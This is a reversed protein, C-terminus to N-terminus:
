TCPARGCSSLPVGRPPMPPERSRRPRPDDGGATTDRSREPTFSVAWYDNHLAGSRPSRLVPGSHLLRIGEPRPSRPTSDRSPRGRAGRDVSSGLSNPWTRFTLSLQEGRSPTDPNGCPPATRISCLHPRRPSPTVIRSSCTARTSSICLSPSPYLHAEVGSALFRSAFTAHAHEVRCCQGEQVLFDPESTLLTSGVRM